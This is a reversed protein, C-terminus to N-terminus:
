IREKLAEIATNLDFFLKSHKVFGYTTDTEKNLIYSVKSPNNEFDAYMPIFDELYKDLYQYQLATIDIIVHEVGSFMLFKKLTAYFRKTELIDDDLDKTPGPYQGAIKFYGVKNQKDHKTEFSFFPTAEVAEIFQPKYHNGDYYRVKGDYYTKKLLESGYNIAELETEFVTDGEIIFNGKIFIYRDKYYHNLKFPQQTNNQLDSFNIIRYSTNDDYFEDNFYFRLLELEEISDITGTVKIIPIYADSKTLKWYITHTTFNVKPTAYTEFTM